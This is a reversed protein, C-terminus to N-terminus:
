NNYCWEGKTRELKMEIQYVIVKGMHCESGSLHLARTWELRTKRIKMELGSEKLKENKFNPQVERYYLKTYIERYLKSYLM